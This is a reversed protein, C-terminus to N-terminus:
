EKAERIIKRDTDMSNQNHYSQLINKPLLMYYQKTRKSLITNSNTAKWLELYTAHNEELETFLTMLMKILIANVNCRHNPLTSM